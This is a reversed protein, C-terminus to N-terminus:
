KISISGRSATLTIGYCWGAVIMFPILVRATFIHPAVLGAFTFQAILMYGAAVTQYSLEKSYKFQYKLHRKFRVFLFIFFGIMWIIGFLGIELGTNIFANETASTTESMVVASSAMGVGQGFPYQILLKMGTLYANIHGINRGQKDFISYVLTSVWDYYLFAVGTVIILFGLVALVYTLRIRNSKFVIAGISLILGLIIARTQTLVIILAALITKKLPKNKSFFMQAIFFNALIITFYATYLPENFPGLMRRTLEGFANVPVGWDRFENTTSLNAVERKMAMVPFPAKWVSMPLIFYELLSFILVLFFIYKLHGYFMTYSKSNSALKEGIIFAFFLLLYTRLGVLKSVIPVESLFVSLVVYLMLTILALRAISFRAQILFFAGLLIVVFEKLLLLFKLLLLPLGKQFLFSVVLDQFPIFYFLFVVSVTTVSVRM